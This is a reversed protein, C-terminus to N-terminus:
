SDSRVKSGSTYLMEPDIEGTRWKRDEFAREESYSYVEIGDKGPFAELSSLSGSEEHYLKRWSSFLIMTKSKM